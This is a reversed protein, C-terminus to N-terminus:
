QFENIIDELSEEEEIDLDEEFARIYEFFNYICREKQKPSSININSNHDQSQNLDHAKEYLFEVGGRIYKNFNQLLKEQSKERFVQNIREEQNMNLSKDLIAILKFVFELKTKEKLIQETFIKTSAEGKHKDAKRGNLFGIIPALILVDLNRNFLGLEDVIKKVYNAHKGQFVYTEEFM